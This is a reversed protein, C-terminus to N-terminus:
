GKEQRWLKDVALGQFANLVWAPPNAEEKDLVPVSVVFVVRVIPVAEMVM